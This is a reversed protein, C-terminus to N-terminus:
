LAAPVATTPDDPPSSSRVFLGAVNFPTSMWSQNPPYIGLLRRCTAAGLFHRDAAGLRPLPLTQMSGSLTTRELIGVSRARQHVAVLAALSAQQAAKPCEELKPMFGFNIAFNLAMDQHRDSCAFAWVEAAASAVRDALSAFVTRLGDFTVVMVSPPLAALAAWLEVPDQVGEIGNGRGVIQGGPRAWLYVPPPSPM